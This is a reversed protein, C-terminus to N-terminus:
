EIVHKTVKLAQIYNYQEATIKYQFSVTELGEVDITIGHPKITPVKNVNQRTHLRLNKEYFNILDGVADRDGIKFEYNNKYYSDKPIDYTAPVGDFQFNDFNVPVDKDNEEVITIQIAKFGKVDLEVTVWVDRELPEDFLISHTELKEEEKPEEEKPTEDVIPPTTDEPLEDQKPSCGVLGLLATAAFLLTFLKKMKREGQQIKFQRGSLIM